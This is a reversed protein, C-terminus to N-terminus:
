TNQFNKVSSRTGSTYLFIKTYCYFIICVPMFWATLILFYIYGRDIPDKSWTNFECVLLYSESVYSNIGGLPM